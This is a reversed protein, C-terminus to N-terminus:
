VQSRLYLENTYTGRGDDQSLARHLMFELSGSQDSTAGMVQRTLVVFEQNEDQIFAASQVPFYDAEVKNASRHSATRTRM